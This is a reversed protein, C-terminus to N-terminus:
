DTEQAKRSASQLWVIGVFGAISISIMILVTIFGLTYDGTTDRLRGVIWPGFAAGLGFMAGVLGNVLGLGSAQFVDSALATTQSSRTGEGLAYFMAYAILIRSDGADPLVLLVGVAGALSLAGLTFALARGFRDSVWGWMIFAGITLFGALGVYTAAVSRDIGNSQIYAVQHVTLARLPGLAMLSVLMLLWFVPSRFLARSDDAIDRRIEIGPPKRLVMILVPALIFLCIAALVVYASRWGITDILWTSMPVFILSGLGTGAFAVGIARGRASPPVWAAINAAVPGLGVIALGSGGIIGYTVILQGVTNVRSSLFLGVALLVVGCTFIVRPGYRDLLIGAPTSGFAFVLMSVSFIGAAAENSWGEAVVFEAFFVSFSLRIGFIILAMFGSVLVIRWAIDEQQPELM